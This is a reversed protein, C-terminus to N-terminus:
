LGAKGLIKLTRQLAAELNYHPRWGLECIKEGSLIAKTAQSYGAKEIADALEFRVNVGTYGAIWEALEKLTIRCREDAINYAEGNKGKLLCYFIGAAADAVYSYSYLQDGTSKLIIDKHEVARKIFQAVAKSDSRQMTPGFVRPLRVIVTDTGKQKRYAQCLAEACRKSEPYGARMTNCDIYGCYKEDFAETDGRNEGYIEVSSAFLFREAKKEASLELLQYTGITNTTITGIPDAAYALPHTNSALHLVYDISAPAATLPRTIDCCIYQFNKDELYSRFCKKIKEENRALACIKCDLGETRNKYLLVDVLFRGIMGSAGAILIVKKSFHEWNISLGAVYELDKQYLDIASLEM